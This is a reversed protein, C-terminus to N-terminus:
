VAARPGRGRPCFGRDYLPDIPCALGNWGRGSVSLVGHSCCGLSGRRAAPHIGVLESLAAQANLRPRGAAHIGLPVVPAPGQEALFELPWPALGLSANPAMTWFSQGLPVSQQM